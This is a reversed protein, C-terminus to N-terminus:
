EKAPERTGTSLSFAGANTRREYVAVALPPLVVVQGAPFSDPLGDTSALLKIWGGDAGEALGGETKAAWAGGGEASAYGVPVSLSADRSFNFMCLLHLDRQASYRYVSLGTRGLVDAQLRTKPGDSLLPHERRLRILSRHWDLLVAHDGEERKEWRLKSELFVSGDQPNRPDGEWDFSAFQQKRGELLRAVTAPDRYDSFFYFPADEGYEEGMFLLPIYPSLLVSAAALKLAALGVLGTLRKGDPRNGPLDHNQNFVVFQRGDIAASSAGHKRHRFRVFEGSHVFGEKWAKALQEVSGFDRYHKWGDPDILVYLAHHFDDLWQADFGLGGSDPSRLVRPDNADSEAVLRFSRGSRGEWEKVAAHMEDWIRVANRDFIEHIADLRLGDIHFQGAWYLINGTIFDRVGDCWAGDFNMADGWPTHYKDSFYPGYAALCNGEAGVHNYVVDLFVSIGRRHCADVLRQLGEPGGYGHQVAYLFVGDYGWNRDGPCEAVPMLQLADIGTEALADLRPIIADFTGEPTFVGVHLEYFILERLPRGKWQDDSWTFLNHDVVASPGGVGEPQCASAPDPYRKDEEPLYYYYRQGAGIGPVDISFYGRDDKSM